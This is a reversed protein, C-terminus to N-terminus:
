HYARCRGLPKGCICDITLHLRFLAEEEAPVKGADPATLEDGEQGFTLGGKNLPSM